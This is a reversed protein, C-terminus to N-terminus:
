PVLRGLGAGDCASKLEAFNELVERMPRTLKQHRPRFLMRPTQGLFGTLEADLPGERGLDVSVREYTIEIRRNKETWKRFWRIEEELLKARHVVEQVPLSFTQNATPAAAAEWSHWVKRRDAIM